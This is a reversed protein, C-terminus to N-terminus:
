VDWYKGTIKKKKKVGLLSTAPASPPPAPSSAKKEKRAWARMSVAEGEASVLRKRLAFIM